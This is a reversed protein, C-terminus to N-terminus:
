NAIEPKQKIATKLEDLQSCYEESNITENNPLFVPNRGLEM